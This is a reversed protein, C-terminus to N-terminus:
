SHVVLEAPATMRRFTVVPTTAHTVTHLAATNAQGDNSTARRETKSGTEVEPPVASPTVQIPAPDSPGKSYVKFMLPRLKDGPNVLQVARLTFKHWGKALGVSTQVTVRDDAVPSGSLTIHLALDAQDDIHMGAEGQSRSHGALIVTYAGDRPVEVWMDWQVRMAGQTPAVDLWQSPPQTSFDALTAPVSASAITAWPDGDNARGQLTYCIFRTVLGIPAPQAPILADSLSVSPSAAPLGRVANSSEASTTKQAAGAAPAMTVLHEPVDLRATASNQQTQEQPSTASALLGIVTCLVLLAITACIGYVLPVPLKHRDAITDIKKKLDDFRM